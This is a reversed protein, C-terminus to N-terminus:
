YACVLHPVLIEQPSQIEPGLMGRRMRGQPDKQFQIALSDYIGNGVDAIQMRAELFDALMEVVVLVDSDGVPHVVDRRHGVVHGPMVRDLCKQADFQRRAALVDTHQDAFQSTDTIV